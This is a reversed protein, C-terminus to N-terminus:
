RSGAASIRTGPLSDAGNALLQCLDEFLPADQVVNRYLECFRAAGASIWRVAIEPLPGERLNGLALTRPLGHRLPVVTGDEEVVLPSILEGLFRTKGELGTRWKDLDGIEVPLRYKHFAEFQVVLEGRHMDRLCEIMMWATAMESDSLEGAPTVNLLAAGQASAFSAAAELEGMNAPTLHFVLAFPIGSRRVPDLGRGMAKEFRVGLLDVSHVLAKLRRPTLLGCRTTLTTLMRMRHAERCLTALGPLLVSQEGAIALFNYGLSAAGRIADLFLPVGLENRGAASSSRRCSANLYGFNPTHIELTRVEPIALNM